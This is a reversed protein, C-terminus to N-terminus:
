GYIVNNYVDLPLHEPAYTEGYISLESVIARLHNMSAQHLYDYLDRIDPHDTQSLRYNLVLMNIEEIQGASYLADIVSASSQRTLNDYLLEAEYNQFDGPQMGALEDYVGYTNFLGQISSMHNLESDAISNLLPVNWEDSLALYVDCVVKQVMRVNMIGAQEDATLTQTPAVQACITLLLACALTALINGKM